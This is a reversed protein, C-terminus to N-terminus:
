ESNTWSSQPYNPSHRQRSDQSTTQKSPPPSPLSIKLAMQLQSNCSASNRHILSHWHSPPTTDAHFIYVKAKNQKEKLRRKRKKDQSQATAQNPLSSSPSSNSDSDSPNINDDIDSDPLYDDALDDADHIHHKNSNSPM